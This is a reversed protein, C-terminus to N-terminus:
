LIFRRQVLERAHPRTSLEARLSFDGSADTQRHPDETAVLLWDKVAALRSIVIEQM